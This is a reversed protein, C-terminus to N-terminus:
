VLRRDAEQDPHPPLASNASRDRHRTGYVRQFSQRAYFTEALAAFNFSLGPRHLAPDEPIRLSLLGNCLASSSTKCGGKGKCSNKGKCGNDSSKCGGQGKCDNKGKCDHKANDDMNRANVGAKGNIAAKVTTSHSIGAPVTSASARSAAGSILGAFAAAAVLGVSSGLIKTSRNM